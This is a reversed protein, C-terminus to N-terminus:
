AEAKAERDMLAGVAQQATWEGAAVRSVAHIIPLETGHQKGWDHLLRATRLGEVVKGGQEPQEGLALAEGAARNRSHRSSATAMLDGLGSLGYLTGPQAGAWALYHAMEPLGRTLLSAKANDGLRLGDVMGAAVALVNKLVGGLEVGTPDGSTYPRLSASQLLTQVRAALAPDDSAIVTAAPLGRGIEEAHNPGSLVALRTFGQARALDSLREGGPGLGKACLVLPLEPPLEALLDPVGVSPTVVLALEAGAVAEDLSSTIHLGAPLSVGPLYPVNERASRLEQAAAERRAWLVVESRGARLLALALATGWGGAGLVAVKPTM